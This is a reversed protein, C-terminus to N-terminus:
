LRVAEGQSPVASGVWAFDNCPLSITKLLEDVTAHLLANAFSRVHASYDGCHSVDLSNARHPCMPFYDSCHEPRDVGVSMVVVLIGVQNPRLKV